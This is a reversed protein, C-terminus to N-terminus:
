RRAAQYEAFLELLAFGDEDGWVDVIAVDRRYEGEEGAFTGWTASHVRYEMCREPLARLRERLDELNLGPEDEAGEVIFDISLEDEDVEVDVVEVIYWAGSDEVPVDVDRVMVWVPCPDPVAPDRAAEDMRALVTNANM